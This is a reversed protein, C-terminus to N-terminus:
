EASNAKKKPTNPTPKTGKTQEIATSNTAPAKAEGGSNKLYEKNLWDVVKQSLDDQGKDDKGKRYYVVPQQLLQMIKNPDSSAGDLRSFQIVMTYKYYNAFKEVADQVELYVTHMVKANSRRFKTEALKKDSELDYALKDLKAQRSAHEPTGEQFDKLEAQLDKARKVKAQFKAQEEQQEAKFDESIYKLKEYNQMVYSIDILGIRHPTDDIVAEKRGSQGWATSFFYSTGALCLFGTATLVLKRM